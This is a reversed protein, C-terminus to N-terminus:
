KTLQIIKVIDNIKYILHDSNKMVLSINEDEYLKKFLKLKHEVDLLFKENVAQVSVDNKYKVSDNIKGLIFSLVSDLDENLLYLYIEVICLLDIEELLDILKVCLNIDFKNKFTMGRLISSIHFLINKVDNNSFIGNCINKIHGVNISRNRIHANLNLQNIYSRVIEFIRGSFDSFLKYFTNRFENLVKSYDFSDELDNLLEIANHGENFLFFYRENCYKM